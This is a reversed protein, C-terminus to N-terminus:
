SQKQSLKLVWYAGTPEGTGREKDKRECDAGGVGRLEGGASIDRDLCWCLFLQLCVRVSRSDDYARFGLPDSESAARQAETLCIPHQTTSPVAPEPPRRAPQEGACLSFSYFHRLFYLSLSFSASSHYIHHLRTSQEPPQVKQPHKREASPAKAESSELLALAVAPSTSVPARSPVSSPVPSPSPSPSPFPTPATTAPPTPSEEPTIFASLNHPNSCHLSPSTEVPALVPVPVHGFSCIDYRQPYM